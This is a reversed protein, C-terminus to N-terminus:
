PFVTDSVTASAESVGECAFFEARRRLKALLESTSIAFRINRPGGGSVHDSKRLEGSIM